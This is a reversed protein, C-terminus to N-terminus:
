KLNNKFKYKLTALYNEVALHLLLIICISNGLIMFGYTADLIFILVLFRGSIYKSLVTSPKSFKINWFWRILKWGM